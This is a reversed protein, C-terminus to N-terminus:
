SDPQLGFRVSASSVQPALMQDISVRMQTETYPKRLCETGVVFMERMKHTILNGTAYLVRLTPRLATAQIALDCGGFVEDKLYIDTFMADLHQPSRLIVLAEEVDGASFTQHGWDRLVTETLDRLFFDDEVVLINAM